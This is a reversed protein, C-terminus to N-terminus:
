LVRRINSVLRYDFVFFKMIYLPSLQSQWFWHNIPSESWSALAVCNDNNSGIQSQFCSSISPKTCSQLLEMALAISNSYDQELGDIYQANITM